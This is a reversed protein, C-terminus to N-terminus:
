GVFLKGRWKDGVGKEEGIRKKGWEGKGEM